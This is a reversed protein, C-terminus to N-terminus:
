EEKPPKNPKLKKDNNQSPNGEAFAEVFGDTDSTEFRQKRIYFMDEITDLASMDSVYTAMDNTQEFVKAAEDRYKKFYTQATEKGAKLEEKSPPDLKISRTVAINYIDPLNFNDLYKRSVEAYADEPTYGDRILDDYYGLGLIAAKEDKKATEPKPGISFFQQKTIEVKGLDAALLKRTERYNIFGPRDKKYKEFVKIFRELDKIEFKDALETSTLVTREIADIDEVGEASHMAGNILNLINVDSLVTDGLKARYLANRQASNIQDSKFLDNIEDITFQKEDENQLTNLVYAFNNVKQIVSAKEKIEDFNRKEIYESIVASEANKRILKAADTGIIKELDEGLELVSFPDNKTKLALQFTLKRLESDEITKKWKEPSYRRKNAPDNIWGQRNLSAVTRTKPDDSAEDREQEMLFDLDNAYAQDAHNGIIKSYLGDYNKDVTSYLYNTFLDKVEKNQGELLKEFKKPNLDDFLNNLENIDTTLSYKGLAESVQKHSGLKLKRFNNKDEEKKTLKAANAIPKTLANFGQEVMAGIQLAPLSAAGLPPTKYPAIQRQSRQIKIRAM